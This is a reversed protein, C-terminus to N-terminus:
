AQDIKLKFEPHRSHFKKARRMAQPHGGRYVQSTALVQGNESEIRYYWLGSPGRLVHITDQM